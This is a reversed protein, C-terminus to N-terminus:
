MRVDSTLHRKRVSSSLYHRIIDGTVLQSHAAFVAQLPRRPGWFKAFVGREGCAGGDCELCRLILAPFPRVYTPLAASTNRRGTCWLLCFRVRLDHTPCVQVTRSTMRPIDAHPRGPSTQLIDKFRGWSPRLITPPCLYALWLIVERSDTPRVLSTRPVTRQCGTSM